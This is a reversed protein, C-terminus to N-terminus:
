RSLAKVTGMVLGAHGIANLAILEAERAELRRGGYVDFAIVIAPTPGTVVVERERPLRAAAQSLADVMAARLDTLSMFLDRDTIGELWDNLVGAVEAMTQEAADASIFTMAAAIETARIAALTRISDGVAVYAVDRAAETPTGASPLVLSSASQVFELLGRLDTLLQVAAAIESVTTDGWTESTFTGDNFLDDIYADDTTAGIALRAMVALRSWERMWVSGSGAGLPGYHANASGNALVAVAAARQDAVVEVFALPLGGAEVCDFEIVCVGHQLDHKHSVAGVQVRLQGRWPHVLDGPGYANLAALLREKRDLYDDGVVFGRLKFAPRIRGLDNTPPLADSEPIEDAVIRRGSEGGLEVAEFGVGRFSAPRLEDRWGM